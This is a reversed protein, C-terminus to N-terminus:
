ASRLSLLLHNGTFYLWWLSAAVLIVQYAHELRRQHRSSVVGSKVWRKTLNRSHTGSTAIVLVGILFGWAWSLTVANM